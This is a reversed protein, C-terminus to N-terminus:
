FLAPAYETCLVQQAFFCPAAHQCRVIGNPQGSPGRHRVCVQGHRAGRIGPQLNHWPMTLSRPVRVPIPATVKQLTSSINEPIPWFFFVPRASHHELFTGDQPPLLLPHLPGEGGGTEAIPVLRPHQNSNISADDLLSADPAAMDYRYCAPTACNWIGWRRM